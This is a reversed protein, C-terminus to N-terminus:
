NPPVNPTGKLSVIFVGLQRSTSDSQKSIFSALELKSGYIVGLVDFDAQSNIHNQLDRKKKVKSVHISM